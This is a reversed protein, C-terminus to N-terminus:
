AHREIVVHRVAAEDRFHEDLLAVPQRHQLFLLNVQFVYEHINRFPDRISPSPAHRGFLTLPVTQRKRSLLEWVALGCAATARQLDYWWWFPLAHMPMHSTVM